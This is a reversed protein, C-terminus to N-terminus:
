FEPIMKIGIGSHFGRAVVSGDADVHGVKLFQQAPALDV